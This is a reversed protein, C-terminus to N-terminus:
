SWIDEVYRHQRRLLGMTSMAEDASLGTSQLVEVFAAHVDKAMHAGDGCVYVFANKHLVLEAVAAAHELLRHQVYVKHDQERSFATHLASLTGDGVFAELEDQFLFDQDRRQNGFFLLADGVRLPKVSHDVVEVDVGSRWSGICTSHRNHEAMQVRRRRHQLFGVFPAVGTGPGVMVIPRELNGPLRFDRTPKRFVPIGTVAPVAIAPDLHAACRRELWHSCLGRRQVRATAADSSAEAVYTVVSLAIVISEPHQLPSSAISYYRPQLPPLASLLAALPPNCSPFLALLDLLTLRQAEVFVRFQDRGDRSSLLSLVHQERADSCHDALMRVFTKKPVSTFDLHYLFLDAVPAERPLAAHNGKAKGDDACTSIVVWDTLGYGLRPLLFDVADAENPCSIGISDGPAYEMDSGSVNLELRLVRRAAQAGGATLYRADTM